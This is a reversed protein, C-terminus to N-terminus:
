DSSAESVIIDQWDDKQIKILNYICTPILILCAALWCLLYYYFNNPLFIGLSIFAGAFAYFRYTANQVYHGVKPNPHYRTFVYVAIALGFWFIILPFPILLAIITGIDMWRADKKASQGSIIKTKATTTAIM